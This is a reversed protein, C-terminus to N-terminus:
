KGQKRSTTVSYRQPIKCVDTEIYMWENVPHHLLEIQRYDSLKLILNLNALVSLNLSIRFSTSYYKGREVM